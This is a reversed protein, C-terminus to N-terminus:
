CSVPVAQGLSAQPKVEITCKPAKPLENEPDIAYDHGFGFSVGMKQKIEKGDSCKKAAVSSSNANM